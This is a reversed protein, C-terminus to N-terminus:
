FFSIMLSRNRGVDGLVGGNCRLGVMWEGVMGLLMPCEEWGGRMRFLAFLGKRM